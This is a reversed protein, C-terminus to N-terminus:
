VLKTDFILNIRPMVVLPPWTTRVPSPSSLLIRAKHIVERIKILLKISAKVHHSLAEFPWPEFRSQRCVDKSPSTFYLGRRALNKQGNLFAISPAGWISKLSGSATKIWVILLFSLYVLFGSKALSVLLYTSSPPEVKLELYNSPWRFM